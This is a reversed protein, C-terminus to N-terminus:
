LCKPSPRGFTLIALDACPNCLPALPCSSEIVTGIKGFVNDLVHCPSFIENLALQRVTSEAELNLLCNENAQEEEEEEEQSRLERRKM